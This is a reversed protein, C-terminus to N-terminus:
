PSGGKREGNPLFGNNHPPPDNVFVDYSLTQTVARPTQPETETSM